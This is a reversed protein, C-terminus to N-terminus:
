DRDGANEHPNYVSHDGEELYGEYRSCYDKANCKKCEDPDFADDNCVFGAYRVMLLRDDEDTWDMESRGKYYQDLDPKRVARMELYGYCDYADNCHDLAYKIAKGRTEAFIIFSYGAEGNKDSVLYAKM